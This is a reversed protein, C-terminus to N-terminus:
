RDSEQNGTLKSNSPHGRYGCLGCVAALRKDGNEISENLTGM